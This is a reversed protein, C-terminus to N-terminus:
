AVTLGYDLKSYQRLASVLGLPIGILCSVLITLGMLEMTAPIKEKIIDFVKRNDRFRFGLNGQLTSGLWIAYRVPIPRNLGYRERLLAVEELGVPRGEGSMVM